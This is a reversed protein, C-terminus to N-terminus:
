YREEVDFELYRQAGHWIPKLIQDFFQGAEELECGRRGRLLV